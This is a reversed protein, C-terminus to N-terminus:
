RHRGGREEIIAIGTEGLRRAERALSDITKKGRATYREGSAAAMRKALMRTDPSSYRSTTFM